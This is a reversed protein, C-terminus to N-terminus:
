PDLLRHGLVHRVSVTSVVMDSCNVIHCGRCLRTKFGDKRSECFLGGLALGCQDHDGAADDLKFSVFLAEEVLVEKQRCLSGGVIVLRNPLDCTVTESKLVPVASVVM